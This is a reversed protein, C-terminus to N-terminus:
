TKCCVQSDTLINKGYDNETQDCSIKYSCELLIRCAPEIAPPAPPILPPSPPPPSPPVVVAYGSIQNKCVNEINAPKLNFATNRWAVCLSECQARSGSGITKGGQSVVWYGILSIVVIGITLAVVYPIAVARM